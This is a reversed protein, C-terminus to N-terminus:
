GAAEPLGLHRLIDPLPESKFAFASVEYAEPNRYTYIRAFGTQLLAKQLATATFGTKHAFFDEGSEEIIKGWGYLVDRVLIPGAPSVYLVDEIDMDMAVVKEM